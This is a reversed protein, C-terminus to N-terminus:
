AYVCKREKDKKGKRETRKKKRIGGERMGKEINREIERERETETQRARKEKERREGM